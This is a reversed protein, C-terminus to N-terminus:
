GPCPAGAQYGRGHRASCKSRETCRPASTIMGYPADHAAGAIVRLGAPSRVAPSGCRAAGASWAQVVLGGRVPGLRSRQCSSGRRRRRRRPVPRRRLRHPLGLLRDARRLAVRSSTSARAAPSHTSTRACPRGAPPATRGCRAAAPPAAAARRGRVGVVVELLDGGRSAYVAGARGSVPPSEPQQERTRSGRRPAPTPPAILRQPQAPGALGAAVPRDRQRHHRQDHM